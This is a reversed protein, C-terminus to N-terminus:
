SDPPRGLRNWLRELESAVNAPRLSVTEEWGALLDNRGLGIRLEEIDGHVLVALAPPLLDALELLRGRSTALQQELERARARWFEVQGALDVESAIIAVGNPDAAVDHGTREDARVGGPVLRGDGDEEPRM